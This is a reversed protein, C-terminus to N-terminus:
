APNNGIGTSTSNAPGFEYIQAKSTADAGLSSVGVMALDRFYLLGGMSAALSCLGTIATGSGSKISNLVTLRDFLQFRDSGAADAVIVGLAGAGTAFMIMQCNRFENRPAGGAFEINANAVTRAITDIGITCDVFQNEGTGSIKLDRSGTDTAGATDGMGSIACNVFMNRGGTVTMCIEATTGTGFGQFWQLNQFLCGSASVTFFNAFATAGATPAIRSRNSVNVGSSLGVLHTANKAWTFGTSLRWTSATTGDGIIAVADNMGAVCLGYAVDVTRLPSTRSGDAVDSGHVADVYYVNRFLPVQSGILGAIQSGTAPTFAGFQTIQSM